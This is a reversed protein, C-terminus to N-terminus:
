KTQTDHNEGYVSRERSVSRSKCAHGVYIADNQRKNSL